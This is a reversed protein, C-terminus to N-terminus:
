IIRGRKYLYNVDSNEHSFESGGSEQVVHKTIGYVSVLIIIHIFLISANESVNKNHFTGHSVPLSLVSFGLVGM